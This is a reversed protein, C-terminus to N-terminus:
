KKKLYPLYSEMDEELIRKEEEDLLVMKGDYRVCRETLNIEYVEHRVDSEITVVYEPFWNSTDEKSFNLNEFLAIKLWFARMGECSYITGDAWKLTAVPYEVAEGDLIIKINEDGTINMDEAIEIFFHWGSSLADGAQPSISEIVIELEGTSNKSVKNVDYYVATIPDGKEVIVLVQNKFYEEDFKQTATRFREAYYSEEGNENIMNENFYQQLEEASRILIAKPIYDKSGTFIYQVSFGLHSTDPYIGNEAAMGRWNEIGNKIAQYELSDSELYVQGDKGCIIGDELHIEYREERVDSKIELVYDPENKCTKAKKYEMWNFCMSNVLNWAENGELLWSTGNPFRLTYVLDEEVVEGLTVVIDKEAVSINKELNVFLYWGFSWEESYQEQFEEKPIIRDIQIELKNDKNLYVKKVEPRIEDKMEDLLVLLLSKDKFYQEDYKKMVKEFESYGVDFSNEFAAEFCKQLEAPSEVLIVGTKYEEEFIKVAYYSFSYTKEMNRHVFFVLLGLCLIGVLCAVILGIKKKNKMILVGKKENYWMKKDSYIFM